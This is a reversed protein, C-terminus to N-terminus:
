HPLGLFHHGAHAQRSVLQCRFVNKSAFVQVSQVKGRVDPAPAACIDESLAKKATRAPTTRSRMSPAQHSFTRWWPARQRAQIFPPGRFTLQPPSVICTHNGQTPSLLFPLTAPRLDPGGSFVADIVRVSMPKKGVGNIQREVIINM